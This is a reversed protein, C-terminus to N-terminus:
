SDLLQYMKYLYDITMHSDKSAFCISSVDPHHEDAVSIGATVVM